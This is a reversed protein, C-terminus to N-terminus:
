PAALAADIRQELDAPIEAHKRLLIRGSSDVLLNVPLGGDGFIPLTEELPDVLVPFRMGNNDRWNRCFLRTAPTFSADETLIQVIRFGRACYPAHFRPELIPAERVCETCWGAGINILVLEAGALVDGFRVPAGDCDSFSFDALTDGVATGFPGEPYSWGEPAPEIECGGTAAAGDDPAGADVEPSAAAEAVSDAADGSATATADAAGGSSDCGAGALALSAVCWIATCALSTGAHVRRHASLRWM